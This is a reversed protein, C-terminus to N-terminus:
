FISANCKYYGFSHSCAPFLFGPQEKKLAPLKRQRKRKPQATRSAKECIRQPMQSFCLSSFFIIGTRSLRKEKSQPLLASLLMRKAM